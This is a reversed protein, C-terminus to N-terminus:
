NGFPDYLGLWERAPIEDPGTAKNPKLRKLQKAVGHIGFVINPMSPYPSLGKDPPPSNENTFVSKFKDNLINAKASNTHAEQSDTIPSPIGINETVCTKIYPWFAKPNSQLSEGVVQNLYSSHSKTIAKNTQRRLDWLKEWHSNKGSRKAKAHMKDRKRQLRIIDKTIYPLHFKGKRLKTPIYTAILNNIKSKFYEWNSNLSIQDPSRDFYDQALQDIEKNLGEWDASKYQFVKHPPKPKRIPKLNLSFNVAEHDSM